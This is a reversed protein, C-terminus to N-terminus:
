CESRTYSSSIAASIEHANLMLAHQLQAIFQSQAPHRRLVGGQRLLRGLFSTREGVERFLEQGGLAFRSARPRSINARMAPNGATFVTSWYSKAKAVPAGGLCVM